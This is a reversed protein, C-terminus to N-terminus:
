TNSYSVGAANTDLGLPSNVDISLLTLLGYMLVCESMIM